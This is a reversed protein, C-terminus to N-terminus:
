FFPDSCINFQFRTYYQEIAVYVKCVCVCVGRFGGVFKEDENGVFLKQREM